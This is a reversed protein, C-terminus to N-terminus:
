SPGRDASKQSAILEVSISSNSDEAGLERLLKRLEAETETVLREANEAFPGISIRRVTNGGPRQQGLREMAIQLFLERTDEANLGLKKAILQTNNKSPHRKASFIESLTTPSIGLYRAFSRLSFRPNTARRTEYESKLWSRYTNFESNKIKM